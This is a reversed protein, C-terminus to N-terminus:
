FRRQTHVGDAHSVAGLGTVFPIRNPLIEFLVAFILKETKGSGGLIRFVATPFDIEFPLVFGVMVIATLIAVGKSHTHFILDLKIIPIM